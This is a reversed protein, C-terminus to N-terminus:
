AATPLAPQSSSKPLVLKVMQQWWFCCTRGSAGYGRIEGQAAATKRPLPGIHIQSVSSAPDSFVLGVLLSLCSRASCLPQNLKHFSGAFSCLQSPSHLLSVLPQTSYSMEERRTPMTSNPGNLWVVCRWQLVKWKATKIWAGQSTSCISTRAPCPYALLQLAPLPGCSCSHSRNWYKELREILALLHGAEEGRPYVQM